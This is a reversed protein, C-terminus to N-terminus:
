PYYIGIDDKSSTYITVSELNWERKHRLMLLQIDKPLSHISLVKLYTRFQFQDIQTNYKEQHIFHELYPIYQNSFSKEIVPFTISGTHPQEGRQYITFFWNNSKANEYMLTLKQNSYNYNLFKLRKGKKNYQIDLSQFFSKLLSSELDSNSINIIITKTIKNNQKRYLIQFNQRQISGVLPVTWSKYTSIKEIIFKELSKNEECHCPIYEKQWQYYHNNYFPYFDSSAMDMSDIFALSYAKMSFALFLFLLSLIKNM